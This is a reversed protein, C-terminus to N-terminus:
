AGRPIQEVPHRRRPPPEGHFVGDYRSASAFAAPADANKENPGRKKRGKKLPKPPAIPARNPKANARDRRRRAGDASCASRGGAARGEEGSFSWEVRPASPRKRRLLLGDITDFVRVRDIRATSFGPTFNSVASAKTARCAM